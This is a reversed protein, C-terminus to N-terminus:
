TLCRIEVTKGSEIYIETSGNKFFVQVGESPQVDIKKDFHVRLPSISDKSSILVTKKKYEIEPSLEERRKWWKAINSANTIWAGKKKCYEVLDKYLKMWSPYDIENFVSHHWLLTLEGGYRQVMEVMRVCVEWPNPYRFVVIDEIHLPIQLVKLFRGSGVDYPYFPFCTGWRFGVYHNSGLTTDYEFGLAEHIRWTEPISLNLNHQRIGIVKDGLVEELEEKEKKLLNFDNYSYFSGHLGVEWGGLRLKKIIEVLKPEKFSYRRGLHRWTKKDSIKVKGREKLFYFSSRVGLHKELDIIEDFTWYPDKGKLKSVLSIFENKLAAFDLRKLFRISRTIYQYTKRIEDVDHTLCVAFNKGNPWFSKTILPYRNSIILYRIAKFVIESLSDLYPKEVLTLFTNSSVEKELSGSITLYM